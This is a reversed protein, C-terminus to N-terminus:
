QLDKSFNNNESWGLTTAHLFWTSETGSFLVGYDIISVIRMYEVLLLLAVAVNCICHPKILM